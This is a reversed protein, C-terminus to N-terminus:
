CLNSDYKIYGNNILKQIGQKKNTKRLADWIENTYYYDELFLYLYKSTTKSYGWDQGLTLKGDEVIAIISDYSQFVTKNKDSIVFQNKANRFQRVRM